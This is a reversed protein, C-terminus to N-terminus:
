SRPRGFAAGDEGPLVDPTPTAWRRRCCRARWRRWRRMAQGSSFGAAAVGNIEVSRYLNFRDHARHRAVADVTVLTGLPIMEGGRQARLHPRHGGARRFEAEAQVISATCAASATSTTSTPAASVHNCRRNFVETVPVGLKRAKERDLEVKVQPVTPDFLRSPQRDRPAAARRGHVDASLEGLQEVHPAAATRCCSTSAAAAGFGPSRDAPQVPLRHGGPDAAFRGFGGPPGADVASATRARGVAEPPRLRHRLEAPLHQDDRWLRRDDHLVVRGDADRRPHSRGACAGRRHAGALRRPCSAREGLV